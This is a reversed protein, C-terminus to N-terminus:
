EWFAGIAHPGTHAVDNYLLLMPGASPDSRYRLVSLSAWTVVFRRRYDRIPVGLCHALLIRDVSSHGVLLVRRDRGVMPEASAWGALEDVLSAVREAVEEGSEGGPFNFSAPDADYQDRLEPWGAEIEAITHGEWDGYDLEALRADTEVDHTPAAIRATEAARALPSSVVRDLAVAALRDRLGAASARGRESLNAVIRQGLYQEPESRDTHGHRTVILQLM